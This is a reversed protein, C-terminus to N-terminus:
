KTEKPLEFKAPDIKEDIQVVSYAETLTMPGKKLTRKLPLCTETDIWVTAETPRHGKKDLQYEVPQADREGIKEKAGLKFASAAFLDDASAKVSKESDFSDLTGLFGGRALCTRALGGLTGPVDLERAKPKDSSELRIRKGDSIIGAKLAHDGAKGELDARARSDEGLLMEGSLTMKMADMEGTMVVRITKAKVIKEEMKKFLQEAENKEQPLLALVIAALVKHMMM